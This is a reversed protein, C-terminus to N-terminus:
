FVNSLFFNEELKLKYWAGFDDFTNKLLIAFSLSGAL